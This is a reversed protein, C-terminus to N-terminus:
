LLLSLIRGTGKLVTPTRSRLKRAELHNSICFRIINVRASRAVGQLLVHMLGIRDLATTVFRYVGFPQFGSM